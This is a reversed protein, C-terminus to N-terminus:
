RRDLFDLLRQLQSRGVAAQIETMQFSSREKQDRHCDYDLYVRVSDVLEKQTPVLM